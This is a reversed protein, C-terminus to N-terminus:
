NSQLGSHQGSIVQLDNLLTDLPGGDWAMGGNYVGDIVNGSIWNKSTSGSFLFGDNYGRGGNLVVNAVIMNSGSNYFQAVVSATSSPCTSASPILSNGAFLNHSIGSVLIETGCNNGFQTGTVSIWGCHACPSTVYASVGNQINGGLDANKIFVVTSTDIVIGDLNNEFQSQTIDTNWTNLLKLGALGNSTSVVRNLTTHGRGGAGGIADLWRVFIGHGASNRVTVDTLTTNSSEHILLAAVEASNVTGGGASNGDIALDHLSAGNGYWSSSNNGVEVVAQLAANNAAQLITVPNSWLNGAGINGIPLGVISSSLGVTITNEVSYIGRGLFLTVVTRNPIGVKLPVDIVQQGALNRADIIGTVPTGSATALANLNALAMAIKQGATVGAMQSADEIIVGGAQTSQPLINPAPQAPPPIDAAVPPNPYVADPYPDLMDWPSLNFKQPDSFSGETVNSSVLNQGVSASLRVADQWTQAVGTTCTQNSTGNFTNATVSNARSADIAVAAMYPACAGGVFTNNAILNAEDTLQGGISGEIYIGDAANNAFQNGTIVLWGCWYCSKAALGTTANVGNRGNGALVSNQLRLTAATVLEIGDFGNNLFQSEYIFNDSVNQAKFGSYTNNRSIVKRFQIQGSGTPETEGNFEQLIGPGGSNQVIVNTLRLPGSYQIDIVAALPSNVMGMSAVNGDVIVNNIVSSDGSWINKDDGISLVISLQANSAAVLTTTPKGSGDTMGVVSSGMNIQIPQQVIYTGSGLLLTVSTCKATGLQLHTDITRDAINRADVVGGINKGGENNFAANLAVLAQIIKQGATNGPMTSADIVYPSSLMMTGSAYASNSTPANDILVSMIFLAFIVKSLKLYNIIYIYINKFLIYRINVFYQAACSTCSSASAIIFCGFVNM